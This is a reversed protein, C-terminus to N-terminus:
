QSDLIKKIHACKEYEEVEQFWEIMQNLTRIIPVTDLDNEQMSKFDVGKELLLIWNNRVLKDKLDYLNEEMEANLKIQAIEDREEGHQDESDEFM